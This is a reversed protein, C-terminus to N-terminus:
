HRDDKIVEEIDYNSLCDVLVALLSDIKDVVPDNEFLVQKYMNLNSYLSRVSTNLDKISYADLDVNSVYNYFRDFMQVVSKLVKISDLDKVECLSAYVYVVALRRKILILYLGIYLDRNRNFHKDIDKINYLKVVFGGNHFTSMDLTIKILYIM